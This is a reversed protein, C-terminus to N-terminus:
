KKLYEVLGGADVLNRMFIPIPKAYFNMIETSIKGTSLDIEIITGDSIGAVAEPAELVPLGMNFANRFFIRAFSIGIIARIGAAKIALPAHERSSGCGFNKGVLLIDNLKVKKPFDARVSAFCIQALKKNDTISLYEGPVMMDTDINDGFKWIKGRINM